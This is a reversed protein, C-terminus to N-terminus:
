LADREEKMREPEEENRPCGEIGIGFVPCYNCAYTSPKPPFEGSRMESIESKIKEETTAEISRDFPIELDEGGPFVYALRIKEPDTGWLRNAALAYLPLQLRTRYSDRKRGSKWDVIHFTGDEEIFIADIRGRIESGDVELAFPVEVMKKPGNEPPVNGEHLPYEVVKRGYKTHRFDTKARNVGPHPAPDEHTENNEPPEAPLENRPYEPEPGEAGNEIWQHWADGYDRNEQGVEVAEVVPFVHRYYYRRPCTEFEMLSSPSHTEPAPLIYEPREVEPIARVDERLTHLLGDYGTVGLAAATEVESEMGGSTARLVWEDGRRKEWNESDRINPNEDPVGPDEPRQVGCNAPAEHSMEWFSGEVKNGKNTRYFHARSLTLTQRARTVAVYFLRGEEEEAELKLAAKLAKADYAEYANVAAKSPNIKLPPPVTQPKELASDTKVSDPFVGKSLGPIFVHDFELGKVGHITTVVVADGEVEAPRTTESRDASQSVEVYRLFEELREVGGFEGALDRFAEIGHQSMERLARTPIARVERGLGTVEVVREVFEELTVAPSQEEELRTLVDRLRGVRRVGEDSLGQVAEPAFVAGQVGVPAEFVAEMDGDSLLYPDRSLLRVFAERNGGGDAFVRLTDTLYRAEDSELLEGGRVVECPIGKESLAEVVAGSQSWKRILVACEGESAGDAVLREIRGAIEGAEGSDTGCIFTSIGGPPAGERAELIKVEDPSGSPHVAGAVHNAFDLIRTGSRFNRNLKYTADNVGLGAFEEFLQINRITAGQFNYISQLDDGIVVVKSLDPGSEGTTLLEVLRLQAPNTDQFEDVVILDYRNRYPAGLTEDELVRIASSIMDHYQLQGSAERKQEFRRALKVLDLRREFLEKLQPSKENNKLDLRTRAELEDLPVRENRAEGLLQLTNQAVNAPSSLNLRSLSLDDAALDDLVMLWARPDRMVPAEPEIGLPAANERCIEFALRHFNSVKLKGVSDGARRRLRESMEEAAKVTFTIALIREPAVGGSESYENEHDQINKLIMETMTHTKGSGAGALVRAPGGELRVVRLQEPTLEPTKKVTRQM